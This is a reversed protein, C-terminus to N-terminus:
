LYTPKITLEKFDIDCWDLNFKEDYEELFEIFKFIQLEGQSSPFNDGKIKLGFRKHFLNFMEEIEAKEKKKVNVHIKDLKEFRHVTFRITADEPYGLAQLVAKIKEVRSNEM